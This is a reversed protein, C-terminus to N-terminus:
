GCAAGCGSRPGQPSVLELGWRQRGETPGAPAGAASRRIRRAAALPTPALALSLYKGGEEFMVEMEVFERLARAVDESLARTHAQVQRLTRIEACYLYAQRALGEFTGERFDGHRSDEITLFTGGDLYRLLKRGPTRHLARWEECAERVPAWSPDSAPADYELDCLELRRWVEDPLADRYFDRNRVNTVGFRERLRDVTSGVGLTFSALNLPQYATAFRRLNSATEAVEAATAGPFDLLLNANNEVELEACLKMAQLNQITSTGKGIRALYATSLGEIGFQV